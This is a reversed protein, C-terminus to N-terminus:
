IQLVEFMLKLVALPQEVHAAHGAAKVAVTTLKCGNSATAIELMRAAITCYKDDLEGTVVLVPGQLKPLARWM